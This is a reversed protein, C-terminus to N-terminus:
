AGAALHAALGDFYADWGASHRDATDRETFGSHVLTLRTCAPSDGFRVDIETVKGDGNWEWTYRLHRNEEVELFRGENYVDWQDDRVFLRYHGGVVADIDMSTAPPIVTDSSVWAAYVRARPFPFDRTKEVDM